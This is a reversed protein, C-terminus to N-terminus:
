EERRPVFSVLAYRGNVRWKEGRADLAEAVARPIGVAVDAKNTRLSLLPFAGALPGLATEFPTDVPWKVDGTLKLDGKFIVLGSGRLAEWVGPARLRMDWYPWPSGSDARANGAGLPAGRPVSLAFTGDALYAEWRALARRLHDPAPGPPPARPRAARCLRAADRGLRVMPDDQPVKSVYPTHSVLFDAFVLDNDLVFDIRADKLTRIHAWAAAQDDRLVFEKRADQAERGVSQLHAIDDLTMNTLLCLCMQAMERFLVELKAEDQAVLAKEAELEDLMKALQHVATGSAQYTAQKQAFFPDHTKWHQTRAFFARLLRYEAFLWPATFWTGRGSGTLYMLELNYEAILPAGDDPIPDLERNRAMRYKLQSLAGILAKGEDLTAAADAGPDPALTLEHNFNYISDIIGTLIVPWRKVVTEYGATDTPDYPAYPATFFPSM